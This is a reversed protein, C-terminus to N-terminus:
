FTKNNYSTLFDNVQEQTYFIKRGIQTFGIKGEDRWKKLTKKSVELKIALQENSYLQRSKTEFELDELIKIIENVRHLIQQTDEITPLNLQM